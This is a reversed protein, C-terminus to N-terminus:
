FKGKLTNPFTFKVKACYWIAFLMVCQWYGFRDVGFVAHIAGVAFVHNIMWVIPFSMLLATGAWSLLVGAMGIVADWGRLTVSESEVKM